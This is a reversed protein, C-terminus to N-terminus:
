IYYTMGGKCQESFCLLRASMIGYTVEEILVPDLVRFSEPGAENAQAERDVADNGVEHRVTDKHERFM